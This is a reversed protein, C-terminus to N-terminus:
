IAAVEEVSKTSNVPEHTQYNLIPLHMRQYFPVERMEEGIKVNTLHNCLTATILGAITMAGFTSQKNTCDLDPVESDNFLYEKEYKEIDEKRDGRLTFIEMTEMLLRGDILICSKESSYGLRKKWQQFIVKRAVMNDVASIMIDLHGTHSTYEEAMVTIEEDCGFNRCTEKVADVKYTGVNNCSFMQGGTVNTEDVLDPDILYINHGIRALNLAVWSGIGGVGIIILEKLQDAWDAGSFRTTQM